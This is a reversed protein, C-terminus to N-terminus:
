ADTSVTSSTAPSGPSGTEMEKGCETERGHERDHGRDCGERCERQEGQEQHNHQEHQGVGEQLSPPTAKGITTLSPGSEGPDEGDPLKFPPPYQRYQCKLLFEEHNPPLDGTGNDELPITEETGPLSSTGDTSGTLASGEAIAMDVMGDLAVADESILLEQITTLSDREEAGQVPDSIDRNDGQAMDQVSEKSEAGSKGAKQQEAKQHEQEQELFEMVEGTEREAEMGTGTGTEATTHDQLREELAEKEGRTDRDWLILARKNELFYQKQRLSDCKEKVRDSLGSPPAALYLNPDDGLSLRQAKIKEIQRLTQEYLTELEASSLNAMTQYNLQKIASKTRPSRPQEDQHGQQKQKQSQRKENRKQQLSPRETEEMGTEEGRETEMENGEEEENGDTGREQPLLSFRNSVDSTNPLDGQTRHYIGRVVTGRQDSQAKKKKKKGAHEWGQTETDVTAGDGPTAEPLQSSSLETGGHRQGPISRDLRIDPPQTDDRDSTTVGSHSDKYKAYSKPFQKNYYASPCLLYTHGERLCLNCVVAKSCHSTLHGRQGCTTCLPTTCHQRIHDYGGCQFCAPPQGSYRTIGRDSGLINLVLTGITYEETLKDAEVGKYRFRIVYRQRPDPEDEEELESFFEELFKDDYYRERDYDLTRRPLDTQPLGLSEPDGQYTSLARRNTGDTRETRDAAATFGATDERNEGDDEKAMAVTQRRDSGEGSGEM